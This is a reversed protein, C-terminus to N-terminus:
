NTLDKDDALNLVSIEKRESSALQGFWRMDYMGYMRVVM